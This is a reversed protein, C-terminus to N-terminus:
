NNSVQSLLVELDLLDIYSCFYFHAMILVVTNPVSIYHGLFLALLFEYPQRWFFVLNNPHSDFEFSFIFPIRYKWTSYFPKVLHDLHPICPDWLFSQASHWGGCLIPIKMPWGILMDSYSQFKVNTQQGTKLDEKM